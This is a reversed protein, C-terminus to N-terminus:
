EPPLNQASRRLIDWFAGRYGKRIAQVLASNGNYSCNAATRAPEVV